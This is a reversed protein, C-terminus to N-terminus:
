LISGQFIIIIFILPFVHYPCVILISPLFLTLTQINFEKCAIFPVLFINSKKITWSVIKLAYVAVHYLSRFSNLHWFCLTHLCYIMEKNCWKFIFLNILSSYLYFSPSIEKLFFNIWFLLHFPALPLSVSLFSTLLPFQCYVLIM